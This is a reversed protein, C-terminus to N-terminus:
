SHLVSGLELAFEEQFTANFIVFLFFYLFIQLIYHFLFKSFYVVNKNARDSIVFPVTMNLLERPFIEYVLILIISSSTFIISSGTFM